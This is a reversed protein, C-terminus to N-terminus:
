KGMHHQSVVGHLVQPERNCVAHLVATCRGGRQGEPVGHLAPNVRAHQWLRLFPLLHHGRYRSPIWLEKAKRRTPATEKMEMLVPGRPPGGGRQAPKAEEEARPAGM